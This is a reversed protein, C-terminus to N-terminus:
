KLEPANNNNLIWENLEKKITDSDYWLQSRQHSYCTLFIFIGVVLFCVAKRIGTQWKPYLESLLYFAIFSLGVSGLYNYRDAVIWLRNVPIFHLVLLINTLFFMGGALVVPNRLWKWLGWIASFLLIPYFLMWGPLAQGIEMPYFYIHSLRYPMFWKFIYEAFAYCSFVIRQWWSFSVDSIDAVGAYSSIGYIFWLGLALSTAYLPAVMYWVSASKLTRGYFLCLLTAWVPFIVAQEKCGYACLFFIVTLAYYGARHKATQLFRIFAWTALLYFLTYTLVKSASVWAVSEVQIPHIAFLLATLFTIWQISASSLKTTDRLINRLLAYVLIVNIIHLIWCALHYYFPNYGDIAYVAIFLCHNVPSYQTHYSHTFLQIMNDLTFGSETLHNVVQWQDDWSNMLQNSFIPFYAWLCACFIISIGFVPRSVLATLLKEINNFKHSM